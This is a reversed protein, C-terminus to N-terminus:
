TPISGVGGAASEAVAAKAAPAGLWASVAARVIAAVARKQAKLVAARPRRM